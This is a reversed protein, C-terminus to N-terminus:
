VDAKQKREEVKQERKDAQQRSSPERLQITHSPVYFGSTTPWPDLKGQRRLASRVAIILTARATLKNFHTVTDPTCLKSITQM